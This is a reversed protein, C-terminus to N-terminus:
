QAEKAPFWVTEPDRRREPFEILEVIIRVEDFTDLYAFGGDGDCGYGRGSQLVDFGAARADAVAAVISPVQVGVHHLGEGHQELWEDYISPGALPEILEVVPNSRSLAIRMSYAGAAGRYTMEELVHPGYTYGSWATLGLLAHYTRVSRELDRVVIGVQAICGHPAVRAIASQVDM